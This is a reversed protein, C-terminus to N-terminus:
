RPRQRPCDETVARGSIRDPETIKALANCLTCYTWMGGANNRWPRGLRHGKQSALVDAKAKPNELIASDIFM